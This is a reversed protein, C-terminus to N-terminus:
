ERARARCSTRVQAFCGGFLIQFKGKSQLTRVSHQYRLEVVLGSSGVPYFVPFDFIVFMAYWTM